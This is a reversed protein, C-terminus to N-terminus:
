AYELGGDFEHSLIMFFSVRITLLSILIARMIARTHQATIIKIGAAIGIPVGADCSTMHCLQDM